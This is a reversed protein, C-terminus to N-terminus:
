RTHDCLAYTLAVPLCGLCHRCGCSEQMTASASPPSALPTPPTPPRCPPEQASAPRGGAARAATPLGDFLRPDHGQPHAGSRALAGGCTAPAASVRGGSLPVRWGAGPPCSDDGGGRLPGVRPLDSTGHAAGRHAQRGAAQGQSPDAPGCAPQPGSRPGAAAPAGGGGLPWVCWVRVDVWAGGDSRTGAAGSGAGGSVDARACRSCCCRCRM